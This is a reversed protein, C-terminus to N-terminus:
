WARWRWLALVHRSSSLASRLRSLASRAIRKGLRLGYDLRPYRYPRLAKRLLGFVRPDSGSRALYNELWNLFYLRVKHYNGSRNVTVVCSDPHQRYRLWVSSAFYVPATLYVKALFAQDEYLQLPGTFQEEFGSISGVLDRRLLLDSPCPAAARGLPYLALAAEPPAVVTDQVHGTPLVADEGGTWSSWYRVTGCVMGLQPHAEMIKVQESLKNPMWVDDADLLAVFEGRAERLGLNRSASAGRNRHGEHELFRIRSPHRKAYDRAIATSADTSGDDVLLLEFDSFDQALVSEITETLFKEANFFPTLVSVRPPTEVVETQTM